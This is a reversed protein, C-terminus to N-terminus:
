RRIFARIGTGVAAGIADAFLDALEATRGPVFAQHLEDSVGFLVATLWGFIVVRARTRDPFTRGSAHTTLFGLVAYELFHLGKDRLPVYKAYPALAPMSSLTFILAMYLVAPLWALVVERASAPEKRAPM